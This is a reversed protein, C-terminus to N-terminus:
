DEEEASSSKKPRIRIPQSLATHMLSAGRRVPVAFYLRLEENPDELAELPVTVSGYEVPVEWRKSKTVFVAQVFLGDWSVPLDVDITQDPVGQKLVTPHRIETNGGRVRAIM